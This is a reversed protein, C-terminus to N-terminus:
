PHMRFGKAVLSAFAADSAATRSAGPFYFDADAVPGTVAADLDIFWKDCVSAPVPNSALHLQRLHACGALDLAVISEQYLFLFDLNPFNAVGSVSTIGQNTMGSQAGFYTAAAAPVVRVYNTHPAATAFSHTGAHIGTTITGDGWHWTVEAAPDTVQVQLHPQQSNTTFTISSSDGPIDFEGDGTEAVDILVTAGRSRISQAHAVGAASPLERNVTLDVFSLDPCSADFFALLTDIATADLRNYSANFNRLATCGALDITDIENHALDVIELATRGPLSISTLHNNAAQFDRLVLSGVTFAGHQNTNWIYLEQLATFNGMVDAFNQTMQPNDRTCWHWVKPGTGRGVLVETYNNLAGRVDELNPLGSLDFEALNCDEFCVRRLNALDHVVVHELNSTLYCEIFELGPLNTFDISRIQTNGTAGFTTVAPLTDHFDIAAIDQAPLHALPTAEGGDGGDHGFNLSTLRTPAFIELRHTRLAPSGFPRTPSLTAATTTGDNWRWLVSAPTEGACEILPAFGAGASEIEVVASPAVTAARFFRRPGAGAPLNFTVTGTSDDFLRFTEPEWTGSGLDACAEVGYYGPPASLSLVADGAALSEVRLVPQAVQAAAAVPLLLALRALALCSRALPTPM